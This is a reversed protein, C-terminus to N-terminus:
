EIMELFDFWARYRKVINDLGKVGHGQGAFEVYTVPKGLSDLKAAMTRSEIVPVRNDNEGHLLLLKGMLKDAHTIPSRDLLKKREAEPDGAELTVWDPINCMEYFRIIDSFGAHSVGFGWDFQAEIGNIEGPFTLLRMTAYGGHSGGYCGVREPPIDLRDSIYKAAYIIDIIENGGLDKDNLEAFERGFGSSGRPSPSLVYIGAECFIQTQDSFYNGGGYFSTILVMQQEKPLPNKPIYLFAHLKRKEGTAPDYDFTEYKVREVTSHIIKQELEEPLSIKEEFVFQNDKVVLEDIQFPSVASTTSILMKNKDDELISVNKDLVKRQLVKSTFPDILLLENEVKRDIVAVLRKQGEIDLLSATKIDEKYLTVPKKQRTRINYIYINMYGSENSVYIFEDANLWEEFVGVARPKSDDTLLIAKEPTDKFPVYVFNGFTRDANKNASLVVGEADPQWSPSGWTFRFEPTDQIITKEKGTELDLIRLESKREDKTGLRAIYAIKRQDPGWRWGFVYPVDTLKELHDTDPDFRYLNLVEDNKEDGNWYLQEETKRYRIGWVNRKAFDIESVVRGKALDIGSDSLSIEMLQTEDGIKYYYMKEAEYFPNFGSYPFGEVYPKLDIKRGKFHILRDSDKGCFFFIASLLVVVLLLLVIRHNKSNLM